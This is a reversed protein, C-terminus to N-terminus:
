DFEVYRRMDRVLWLGFVTLIALIVTLYGADYFTVIKPGFLGARIMEYCHLPPIVTLAIARVSTPLWEALYFFGCIPMYMYSIPPWIHEVIHSRESLAAIILAVGLAWWVMFLIGALFLPYNYPLDLVGLIYLLIFSSVFASINGLAELFCLGFIIDLPTISQHYLLAANSSVLRLARGTVHRFILLPLYGSWLFAIMPLGHEIGSRIASWMALVPLAFVLPEVFVWAFGLNRRGWRTQIERLLVAGLVRRQIALQRLMM